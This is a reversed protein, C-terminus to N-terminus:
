SWAFVAIIVFGLTIAHLLIRGEMLEASHALDFKGGKVMSIGGAFLMALTGLFALIIFFMIATM